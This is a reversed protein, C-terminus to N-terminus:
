NFAKSSFYCVTLFVYEVSVMKQPIGKGPISALTFLKRNAIETKATVHMCLRAQYVRGVLLNVGAARAHM